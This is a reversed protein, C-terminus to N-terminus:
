VCYEQRFNRLKDWVIEKHPDTDLLMEVIWVPQKKCRVAREYALSESRTAYVTDTDEVVEFIKM